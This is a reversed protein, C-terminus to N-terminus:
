PIFSSGDMRKLASKGSSTFVENAINVWQNTPAFLTFFSHLILTCPLLWNYSCVGPHHQMKVGHARGYYLGDVSEGVM